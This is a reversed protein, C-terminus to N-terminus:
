RAQLNYRAEAGCTLFHLVRPHMSVSQLRPLASTSAMHCCSVALLRKIDNSSDISAHLLKVVSGQCFKLQLSGEMVLGQSKLLCSPPVGATWAPLCSSIETENAHRMSPSFM